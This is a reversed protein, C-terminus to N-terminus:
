VFEVDVIEEIDVLMVFRVIAIKGAFKAVVEVNVVVAINVALTAVIVVDDNEVFTM